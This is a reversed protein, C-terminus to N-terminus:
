IVKQLLIWWYDNTQISRHLLGLLLAFGLCLQMQNGFGKFPNPLHKPFYMMAKPWRFHEESILYSVLKLHWEVAVSWESGQCHWGHQRVHVQLHMLFIVHLLSAHFPVSDSASYECTCICMINGGGRKVLKMEKIYPGRLISESHMKFNRLATSFWHLFLRLPFSTVKYPWFLLSVRRIDLLACFVDAWIYTAFIDNSHLLTHIRLFGYSLLPEISNIAM